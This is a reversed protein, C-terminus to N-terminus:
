LSKLRPDSSSSQVEVPALQVVVAHADAHAAAATSGCTTASRPWRWGSGPGGRGLRSQTLVGPGGHVHAAVGEVYGVDLGEAVRVHHEDLRQDVLLGVVVGRM